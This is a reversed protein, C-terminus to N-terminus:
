QGSEIRFLRSGRPLLDGVHTKSSAPIKEGNRVDVLVAPEREYDFLMSLDYTRRRLTTSFNFLGLYGSTNYYIEPMEQEMVDLAIAQGAFCNESVEDILAMDAIAKESLTEFDDSYILIGGSLAIADIQSQREGPKLGTGKDRIMICDPDNLWLRKHMPSRVMFNKMSNRVGFMSGTRVLKATHHIWFDGTDPGVRMADVSGIGASLPMGCGIIKTEPRAANRIIEMGKKVVSARSLSLDHHVAGRLSATFLFDCKLYEFGWQHVIVDIFERLYEAYRPHTVDVGYYFCKWFPNYSAKLMKGMENKLIYEPHYRFLESNAAASFPAIWIGPKMGATRVADALEKMRGDFPASQDLWDGVAKQYGDDIQFFDFNMGRNQIARLNRYLLEPTIKNYYQYWSCWGRFNKEPPQIELKERIYHFYKQEVMARTGQIIMIGDLKVKKGPELMQRGFDYIMEFFSRDKRSNANLIIYFFQNFPPLQGALFTRGDELDTILSYMDSSLMGPVNSPLNAMNSTALSMLKFRPRLPKESIRYTRATSWSQYGNRLFSIKRPSVKELFSAIGDTAPLRLRTIRIHKSSINTLSMTYIVGQDISKKECTVEIWENRYFIRKPSSEVINLAYKKRNIGFKLEVNAMPFFRSLHDARILKKM